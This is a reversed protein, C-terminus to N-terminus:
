DSDGDDQPLPEPEVPADTDDLSGTDDVAETGDTTTDGLAADGTDTDAADAEDAAVPTEAEEQADPLVLPGKNGCGSLALAAAISLLTLRTTNMGATYGRAAVPRLRAPPRLARRVEAAGPTAAM